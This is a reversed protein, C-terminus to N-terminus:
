LKDTTQFHLKAVFNLNERGHKSIFKRGAEIVNNGAGLPIKVGYKRSLVGMRKVFYNRAIVSAAAVAIDSNEGHFIGNIKLDPHKLLFRTVLSEDAFKDFIALNTKPFRLKLEDFAMAHMLGLLVNLNKFKSYMENYKEVSPRVVSINQKYKENLIVAIEAITKDNLKKSDCVGIKVLDEGTEQSDVYFGAVILPGFFDGKGSEDSGFHAEFSSNQSSYLPKGEICFVLKKSAENLKIETASFSNRKPSYYVVARGEEGDQGTASLQVGYPVDKVKELIIGHQVLKPEISRIKRELQEIYSYKM